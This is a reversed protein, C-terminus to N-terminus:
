HDGLPARITDWNGLPRITGLPKQHSKGLPKKYHDRSTESQKKRITELPKKRLTEEVPGM